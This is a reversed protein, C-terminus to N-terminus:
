IKKKVQCDEPYLYLPLLRHVDEYAHTAFRPLALKAVNIAFPFYRDLETEFRIGVDTEIGKVLPVGDGILITGSPINKILVDAPGLHPESLRTLEEGQKKYLCSFVLDRRADSVVCVPGDGRYNLAIADLSAVGVVPKGTVMAFAKVTSLGVRLSTFSGPGLGVSFGDIEEVTVGADNLIEGIAPVITTSLVGQSEFSRAILKERDAMVALSFIRSSTDISLIKM